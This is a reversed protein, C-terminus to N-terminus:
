SVSEMTTLAKSLALDIPHKVRVELFDIKPYHKRIGQLVIETYAGAQIEQKLEESKVDVILTDESENVDADLVDVALTEREFAALSDHIAKIVQRWTFSQVQKYCCM